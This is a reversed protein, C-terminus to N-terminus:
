CGISLGRAATAAHLRLGNMDEVEGYPSDHM